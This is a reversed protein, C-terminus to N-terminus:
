CQDSLLSISWYSDFEFRRVEKAKLDDSTCEMKRISEAKYAEFEERLKKLDSRERELQGKQDSFSAEVRRREEELASWRKGLRAKEDNFHLLTQEREALLSSKLCFVSMFFLFM